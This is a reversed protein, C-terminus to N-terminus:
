VHTGPVSGIDLYPVTGLYAVGAPVAQELTAADAVPKYRWTAWRAYMSGCVFATLIGIGILAAQVGGSKRVLTAKQLLLFPSRNLRGPAQVPVKEPPSFILAPSSAATAQPAPTVDATRLVADHEREATLQQQLRVLDTRLNGAEDDIVKLQASNTRSIADSRRPKRVAATAAHSIRQRVRRQDDELTALRENASAILAEIQAEKRSRLKHRHLHIAESTKIPTSARAPPLTAHDAFSTAQQPTATTELPVWAALMEAAANATAISSENSAGRYSVRLRDPASQTLELQSRFQAVLDQRQVSPLDMRRALAQVVGDSLISQAVGVAPMREGANSRTASSDFSLLAATSYQRPTRRAWAWFGAAIAISIGVAILKRHLPLAFFLIPREQM